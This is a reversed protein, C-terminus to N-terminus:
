EITQVFNALNPQLVDLQSQNVKIDKGLLNKSGATLRYIPIGLAGSIVSSTNADNIEAQFMKRFENITRPAQTGGPHVEFLNFNQQYVAYIENGIETVM